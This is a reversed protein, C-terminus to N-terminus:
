EECKTDALDATDSTLTTLNIKFQMLDAQNGARHDRVVWDRLMGVYPADSRFMAKITNTIRCFDKKNDAYDSEAAKLRVLMNHTRMYSRLTELHGLLEILRLQRAKKLEPRNLGYVEISAAGKPDPAGAANKRPLVECHEDYELYLSPDDVCPDILLRVTEETQLDGTKRWRKSENSLPFRTEKGSKVQEDNVDGGAMTVADPVILHVTHNRARNCDICSALLNEWRAALWYYGPVLVATGTHIESKPRFHEVDKPMVHGFVSECYACKRAFVKDLEKSIEVDKYVKFGFKTKTLKKEDAFHAPNGFFEIAKLEELEASSVMSGDAAKKNKEHYVTLALPPAGRPIHIM